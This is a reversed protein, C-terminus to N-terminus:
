KRKKRLRLISVSLGPAEYTFERSAGSAQLEADRVHEPAELSNEDTAKGTLLGITYEEEVDCDLTIEVGEKEDSFNVIKIIVQEEDDTVM